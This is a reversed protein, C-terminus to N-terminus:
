ILDSCSVKGEGETSFRDKAAAYAITELVSPVFMGSFVLRLVTARSQIDKAFAMCAFPIFAAAHM